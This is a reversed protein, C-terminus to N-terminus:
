FWDGAQVYVPSDAIAKDLWSCTDENAQLRGLRRADQTSLYGCLIQTMASVDTEIQPKRGDASRTEARGDVLRFLLPEENTPILPDSIRIVREGSLH